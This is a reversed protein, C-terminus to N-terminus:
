TVMLWFVPQFRPRISSFGLGFRSYVIPGGRGSQQNGTCPICLKANIAQKRHPQALHIKLLFSRSESLKTEPGLELSCMSLLCM